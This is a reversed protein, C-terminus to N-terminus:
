IQKKLRIAKYINGVYINLGFYYYFGDYNLPVPAKQYVLVRYGLAGNIGLFKTLKVENYIGYQTPLYDGSAEYFFSDFANFRYISAYSHGYGAEIPFSIKIYKNNILVYQYALCTFYLYFTNNDVVKIIGNSFTKPTTSYWDWFPTINFGVLFQHKRKYQIGTYVSLYKTSNDRLFSYTQRLQFLFKFKKNEVLKDDRILEHGFSRLRILNKSLKDAKRVTDINAANKSKNISDPLANTFCENQNAHALVFGNLILLILFGLKM